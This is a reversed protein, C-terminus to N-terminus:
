ILQITKGSKSSSCQYKGLNWGKWNSTFFFTSEQKEKSELIPFVENFSSYHKKMALPLIKDILWRNQYSYLLIHVKKKRRLYYSRSNTTFLLCTPTHNGLLRFPPTQLTRGQIHPQKWLSGWARNPLACLISPPPIVKSKLCEDPAWASPASNEASLSAEETTQLINSLPHDRCCLPVKCLSGQLQSWSTQMARCLLPASHPPM